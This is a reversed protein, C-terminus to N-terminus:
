VQLRSKSKSKPSSNSKSQSLISVISSYNNNYLQCFAVFCSVKILTEITRRRVNFVYYRLSCLVCDYYNMKVCFNNILQFIKLSHLKKVFNTVFLLKFILSSLFHNLSNLFNEFLLTLHEQRVLTSMIQHHHQSYRERHKQKWVLGYINNAFTKHWTTVDMRSM